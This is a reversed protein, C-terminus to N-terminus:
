THLNTMRTHQGEKQWDKTAMSKKHIIIVLVSCCRDNARKRRGDREMDEHKHKKSMELVIAQQDDKKQWESRYWKASSTAETKRREAYM